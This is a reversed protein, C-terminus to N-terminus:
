NGGRIYLPRRLRIMKGLSLVKRVGFRVEGFARRRRFSKGPFNKALGDLFRQAEPLVNSAAGDQQGGATGQRRELFNKGRVRENMGGFALEKAL